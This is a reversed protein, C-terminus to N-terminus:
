CWCIGKNCVECVGNHHLHAGHQCSTTRCVCEGAAAGNANITDACFDKVHYYFTSDTAKLTSQNLFQRILELAGLVLQREKDPTM